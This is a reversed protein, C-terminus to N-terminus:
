PQAPWRIDAAEIWARMILVPVYVLFDFANIKLKTEESRRVQEDGEDSLVFGLRETRRRSQGAMM